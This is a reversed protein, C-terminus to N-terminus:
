QNYLEKQEKKIYIVNQSILDDYWVNKMDGFIFNTVYSYYEKLGGFIRIIIMLVILLSCIYLYGFVLAFFRLFFKIILSVLSVKKGDHNINRIGFLIKFISGDFYYEIAIFIILYLSFIILEITESSGLESFSGIILTTYHILVMLVTFDLLFILSRFVVPVKKLEQIGLYENSQITFPNRM